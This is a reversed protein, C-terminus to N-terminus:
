GLVVLGANEVAAVSTLPDFGSFSSRTSFDMSAALRATFLIGAGSKATNMTSANTNTASIAKKM